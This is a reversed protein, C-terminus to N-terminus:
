CGLVKDLTLPQHRVKLSTFKMPGHVEKVRITADGPDEGNNPRDKVTELSVNADARHGSSVLSMGDKLKLRLSADILLQKDVDKEVQFSSQFPEEAELSEAEIVVEEMQLVDKELLKPEVELDVNQSDKL